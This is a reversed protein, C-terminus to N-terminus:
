GLIIGSDEKFKSDLNVIVGKGQFSLDIKRGYKCDGLYGMM